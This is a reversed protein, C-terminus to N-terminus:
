PNLDTQLCRAVRLLADTAVRDLQPPKGFTTLATAGGGQAALDYVNEGQVVLYVYRPQDQGPVEVGAALMEADKFPVTYAVDVRAGPDKLGASVRDLTGRDPEDCGAPRRSFAVLSAAATFVVLVGVALVAAGANDLLGMGRPPVPNGRADIRQWIRARRMYSKRSGLLSVAVVAFLLQWMTRGSLPTFIRVQALHFLGYLVLLALLTRGIRWNVFNKSAIDRAVWPRYEDPLRVGVLRYAILWPLPPRPVPM